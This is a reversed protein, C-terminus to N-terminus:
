KKVEKLDFMKELEEIKLEGKVIFIKSNNALFAPGSGIGLEKNLAINEKLLNQGEASIGCEKIRETDIAQGDACIDWWTSEQHKSRCLAYNWFKNRNYKWVCLQRLDEELESLGGSANFGKDTDLVLYHLTINIKNHSSEFDRLLSLIKDADKGRSSLFVDLKDAIVERGIFIHGGALRPSIYYYGDTLELFGKIKPYASQTDIEKGLLYVPWLVAKTKRAWDKAEKDESDIYKEQAGPFYDKLFAIFRDQNPAEIGKPQIILLPMRKPKDFSCVAQPAAGNLCRGVFGKKRCDSDAVCQPLIGKLEAADEIDGSLRLSSVSYNIIRGGEMAIDIKGLSRGQWSARALIRSDVKAYPQESQAPNGSIVINIDKYEKLLRMDKDEGMYSLVVIIDAKQNKIKAIIDKLVLSADEVGLGGSKKGAQENTLGIFAVRAQATKKIIYPYAGAAKLNASLYSIKSGKIKSILYDRGFNFEEDSINLADYGIVELSKLNIENRIRDLEVGQSHQDYQGAAFFGGADVLITNPNDGRLEKVKTMRRSLGGDPQVPCDCHYLAAHTQGTYLITINGAFSLKLSLICFVFSLIFIKCIGFIAEKRM